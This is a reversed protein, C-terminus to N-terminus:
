LIADVGKRRVLDLLTLAPGSPREAGRELQSIYGVSLKLARAFVAQSMHARERLGRIEDGTLPALRGPETRQANNVERVTIKRYTTDDMIGLKHMDKSM